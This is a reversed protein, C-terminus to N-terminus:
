LQWWASRQMIVTRLRPLVLVDYRVQRISPLDKTEDRKRLWVYNHVNSGNWALLIITNGDLPHRGRIRTRSYCTVSITQYPLWHWWRATGRDCPAQGVSTDVRIGCLRVVVGIVRHELVVDHHTRRGHEQLFHRMKHSRDVVCVAKLSRLVIAGCAHRECNGTCAQGRCARSEIYAVKLTM